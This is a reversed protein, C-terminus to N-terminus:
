EEMVTKVSREGCTPMLYATEGRLKVKRYDSLMVKEDWGIWMKLGCSRCHHPNSDDPVIKGNPDRKITCTWKHGGAPENGYAGTYVNM